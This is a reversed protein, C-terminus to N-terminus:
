WDVGHNIGSHRIEEDYLARSIQGLKSEYNGKAENGDKVDLNYVIQVGYGEDRVQKLNPEYMEGGDPGFAFPYPGYQSKEMGKIKSWGNSYDYSMYMSWYAYDIFDGPEVGNVDYPFGNTMGSGIYYVTLLRDPLLRKVEYCLKEYPLPGNDEFGPQPNETYGAHEEDFDVVDLDYTEMISKIEAALTKIDADTLNSQGVGDGNPLFTLGVKIGKEQLPRIYKDRNQLMAEINSNFNIYVRGTEENFKIDAAFLNVIDFLPKGSTALTWEGANLPNYGSEVYCITVIGSEKAASPRDGLMKFVFYKVTDAASVKVSETTVRLPLVYTGEDLGDPSVTMDFEYSVRDGPAIAIRGNDELTVNEAPLAKFSTEHQSNYEDMLDDSPEPIFSFDVIANHRNTLAAQLRITVPETRVEMAALRPNDLVNCYGLVTMTNELRSTDGALDTEIAETCSVLPLMGAAAIALSTMLTHTKM